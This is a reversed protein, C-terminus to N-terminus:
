GLCSNDSIELEYEDELHFLRRDGLHDKVWIILGDATQDEIFGHCCQIGQHSLTLVDGRKLSRWVSERNASTYKTM